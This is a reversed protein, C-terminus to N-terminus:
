EKRFVLTTGFKLRFEYQSEWTNRPYRGLNKAWSRLSDAWTTATGEVTAGTVTVWGAYTVAEPDSSFMDLGPIDMQKVAKLANGQLPVHYLDSCSLARTAVRCYTDRGYVNFDSQLM